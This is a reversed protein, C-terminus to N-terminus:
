VHARGIQGLYRGNFIYKGALLGNRMSRSVGNVFQGVRNAAYDGLTLSRTNLSNIANEYNGSRFSGVLDDYTQATLKNGIMVKGSEGLAIINPQLARVSEKGFTTRNVVLGNRELASLFEEAKIGFQSPSLATTLADRLVVDVTDESDLMKLAERIDDLGSRFLM